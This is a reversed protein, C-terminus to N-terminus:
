GIVTKLDVAAAMLSGGESNPHLGDGIHCGEKMCGEKQPDLLAKDYDFFGDIGDCQRIWDNVSNRVTEFKLFWESPYDPNWCPTVTGFYIEAGAAHATKALKKYGDIIEKASVTEDKGELQLPHMIDNIGELVCVSDVEDIDFVDREFRKVGAEGFFILQKGSVPEVTADSILRNGGIGCNLLAAKGKYEERIRRYLEDTFMSMHTISDGYAAVVKVEDDSLVQLADFGTFISMDGTNPDEKMHQPIIEYPKDEHRDDFTSNGKEFSVTAGKKSWFSCISDAEYEGKFYLSVVLREGPCARFSVEDSFAEEGPLLSIKKRKELTIPIYDVIRGDVARGLSAGEISLTKNGYRNTFRIRVREGSVNNDFFVRQTTDKIRIVSENYCLRMYKFSSIWKM